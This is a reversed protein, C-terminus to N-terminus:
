GPLVHHARGRGPLQGGRGPGPHWRRAVWRDPHRRQRHRGRPLRRQLQFREDLQGLLSNHHQLAQLYHPLQTFFARAQAFLPPIAAAIFGGVAALAGLFVVSVAAWRPVCRLRALRSVAPELGIALFLAVGVLM